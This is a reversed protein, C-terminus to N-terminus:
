TARPTRSSTKRTDAVFIALGGIQVHSRVPWSMASRPRGTVVSGNEYVISPRGQTLM